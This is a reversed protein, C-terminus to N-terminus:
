HTGGTGVKAERNKVRMKAAGRITKRFPFRTWARHHECVKCESSFGCGASHGGPGTRGLGGSGGEKSLTTAESVGRPGRQGRDRQQGGCRLVRRRVADRGRGGGPSNARLCQSSGQEAQPKQLLVM